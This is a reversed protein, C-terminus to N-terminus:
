KLQWPATPKPDMALLAQAHPLARFPEPALRDVLTRLIRARLLDVGNAESVRWAEFRSVASAVPGALFGGKLLGAAEELAATDSAPLHQSLERIQRLDVAISGSKLAVENRDAALVDQGGVNVIQRIKSLSWRLAGRLDDPADWFM